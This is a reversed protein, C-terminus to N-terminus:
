VDCGARAIVEVVLRQVRDHRPSLYPGDRLRQYTMSGIHIRALVAAVRRQVLSGAVAVEVERLKQQGVARLHVREGVIALRRQLQGGLLAMRLDDRQKGLVAGLWLDGITGSVVVGRIREKM